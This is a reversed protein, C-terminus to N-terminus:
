SNHGMCVAYRKNMWDIIPGKYAYAEDIMKLIRELREQGLESISREAFAKLKEIPEGDSIARTITIIDYKLDTCAEASRDFGSSPPSSGAPKGIAESSASPSIRESAGGCREDAAPDREDLVLETAQQETLPGVSGTRKFNGHQMGYEVACKEAVQVGIHDAQDKQPPKGELLALVEGKVTEVYRNQAELAANDRPPFRFRVNIKDLDVGESMSNVILSALKGRHVCDVISDDARSIGTFLAALLLACASAGLLLRKM